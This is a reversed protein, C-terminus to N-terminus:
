PAPTHPPAQRQQQAFAWGRGLLYTLVAVGVLVALLALEYRQVGLHLLAAYAAENIAFGGASLAFFRPGSQTVSAQRDGFTYRHHGAFSVHFAILWGVGNAWLPRWGAGSVLGVVTLWHVAAAACGVLVFWALRRREGHAAAAAAPLTPPTLSMCHALM